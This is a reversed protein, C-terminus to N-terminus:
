LRKKLNSEIFIDLDGDLVRNVDSTEVNRRHDKVVHHYFTIHDHADTPKHAKNGRITQFGFEDAMRTLDALSYIGSAYEYFLKKVVPGM